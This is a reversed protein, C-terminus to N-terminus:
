VGNTPQTPDHDYALRKQADREWAAWYRADRKRAFQRGAVVHRPRSRGSSRSAAAPSSDVSHATRTQDRWHFWIGVSNPLTYQKFLLSTKLSM